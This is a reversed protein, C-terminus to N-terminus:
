IVEIVEMWEPEENFCGDVLRIVVAHEKTKCKPPFSVKQYIYAGVKYGGHGHNDGDEPFFIFKSGEKLEKLTLKNSM